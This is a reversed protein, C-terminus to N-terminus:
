NVEFLNIKDHVTKLPLRLCCCMVLIVFRFSVYRITAGLGIVCCPSGSPVLAIAVLRGFTLRSIRQLAPTNTKNFSAITNFSIIKICIFNCFFYHYTGNAGRIRPTVLVFSVDVLSLILTWIRILKLDLWSDLNFNQLNTLWM